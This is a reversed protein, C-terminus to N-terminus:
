DSCIVSVCGLSEVANLDKIVANEKAMKQTGLALVIKVISSLAEPIAAVALAIAFLLSNIVGMNNRFVCLGFVIVSLVMIIVALKKSFDDLSKQLPTKRQKTENMLKAMKGIETNMGTGTIFVEARGYIVLTGAYVKDGVLNEYPISEGTLASEDTKLSYNEKIIGDAPVIDGAELVVLDGLVVDEAPIITTVGGRYVKATPASMAKLSALSKEAKFHQWTGLAANFILVAIIVIASERNGTVFSIVAAALLILVLGCLYIKKMQLPM